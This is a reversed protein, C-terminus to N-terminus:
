SCPCPSSITKIPPNYRLSSLRKGNGAHLTPDMPNFRFFVNAVMQFAMLQLLLPVPYARNEPQYFYKVNEPWRIPRFCNVTMVDRKLIAIKGHDTPLHSITHRRALTSNSVTCGGYCRTCRHPLLCDFSHKRLPMVEFFSACEKMIDKRRRPGVINDTMGVVSLLPTVLSIM